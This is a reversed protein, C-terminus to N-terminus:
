AASAKALTVEQIIRLWPGERWLVTVPWPIQRAQECLSAVWANSTEYGALSESLPLADDPQREITWVDFWVRTRRHQRREPQSVSKVSFTVQPM